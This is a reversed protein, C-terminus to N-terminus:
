RRATTLAYIARDLMFDILDGSTSQRYSDWGEELAVLIDRKPSPEALAASVRYEIPTLGATASLRAQMLLCLAEEIDNQQGGANTVLRIAETARQRAFWNAGAYRDVLLHTGEHGIAWAINRVRLGTYIAPPYTNASGAGHMGM